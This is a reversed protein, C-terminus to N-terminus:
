VVKIPIDAKKMIVHRGMWSFVEMGAEEALSRYWSDDLGNYLMRARVIVVLYEFHKGSLGSVIEDALGPTDLVLLHVQKTHFARVVTELPVCMVKHLSGLPAEQDSVYEKLMFHEEQNRKIEEGAGEVDAGHPRWAWR